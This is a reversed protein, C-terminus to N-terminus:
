RSMMGQATRRVAALPLASVDPGAPSRGAERDLDKTTAHRQIPGHRKSPSEPVM